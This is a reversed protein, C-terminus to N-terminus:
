QRAKERQVTTQQALTLVDGDNNVLEELVIAAGEVLKPCITALLGKDKARQFGEPTSIDCGLLDRCMLSNHRQKFRKAFEQVAAATREKRQANDTVTAGCHLGLVMFAGTAAGCVDGMRGMGGGFGAAMNLAMEGQLGYAPGYTSLIAQSCNCGKSFCTVALNAKSM